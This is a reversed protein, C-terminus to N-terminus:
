ALRAAAAAALSSSAARSSFSCATAAYAASSARSRAIWAALAPVPPPPAARELTREHTRRVAVAVTRATAAEVVADVHHRWGTRGFDRDFRAGDAVDGHAT